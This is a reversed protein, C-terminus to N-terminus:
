LSVTFSCYDLCHTHNIFLYLSLHFLISECKIKRCLCLLLEISLPEEKVSHNQFLLINTHLFLGKDNGQMM